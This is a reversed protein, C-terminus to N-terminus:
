PLGLFWVFGALRVRQVEIAWCFWLAAWVLILNMQGMRLSSFAVPIFPLSFCWMLKKFSVNHATAYVNVWYQVGYFILMWNVLRWLTEGLWFPIVAFPLTLIASQPLYIFGVGQDNYLALQHLWHLGADYNPTVTRGLALSNIIAIICILLWLGAVWKDKITKM